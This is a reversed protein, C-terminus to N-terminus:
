FNFILSTFFYLFLSIFYYLLLPLHWPYSLTKSEKPSRKRWRSETINVKIKESYLLINLNNTRCQLETRLRESSSTPGGLELGEKLGADVETRRAGQNDGMDLGKECIVIGFIFNLIFDVVHALLERTASPTVLASAEGLVNRLHNLPRILLLAGRSGASM